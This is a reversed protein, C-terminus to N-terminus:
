EDLGLRALLEEHSIAEGSNFTSLRDRALAEIRLDALEDLLAEYQAAPLMVAAMENNRMVVFKSQEGSSLRAFIDKAQRQVETVSIIENQSLQM